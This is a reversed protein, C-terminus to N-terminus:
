RIGHGQLHLWREGVTHKRCQRPSAKRCSHDGGVDVKQVDSGPGCVGVDGLEVSIEESLHSRNLTPARVTKERGGGRGAEKGKEQDNLPMQKAM